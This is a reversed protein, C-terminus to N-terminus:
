SQHGTNALARLAPTAPPVPPPPSLFGSDKRQGTTELYQVEVKAANIITQSVESIAKAREIDISNDRLGELTAFLHERLANIDTKM